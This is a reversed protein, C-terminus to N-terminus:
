NCRDAVDWTASDLKASAIYPDSLCHALTRRKSQESVLLCQSLLMKLGDDAQVSTPLPLSGIFGLWELFVCLGKSPAYTLCQKYYPALVTDLCVLECITMGVSWVDLSPAVDIDAESVVFRAWEPACYCASYSISSDGINLTTGAPVCGDVDILKVRGKFLMLNHPKLDLHVYGKAHLAAIVLIIAKSMSQVMDKSLPRDEGRRRALYGHLSCQGLETVIYMVGDVPDAGPRGDVDRSYDIMRMFLDCPQVHELQEHWLGPDSPPAFPEALAALVEIQREFKKLVAERSGHRSARSMKIAVEEGSVVHVGRRVISTAGEGLIDEDLMGMLYTKMVPKV